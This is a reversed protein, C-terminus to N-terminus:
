MSPLSALEIILSLPLLILKVVTSIGTCQCHHCCWQSLLLLQWQLLPLSAQVDIAVVGDCCSCCLWSSSSCLPCCHSVQADVIAVIGNDHPHCDWNCCHCLCRCMLSLLPMVLLTVIGAQHHVVLAVISAQCRRLRRCMLLLILVMTVLAVITM